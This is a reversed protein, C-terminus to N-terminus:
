HLVIKSVQIALVADKCANNNNESERADAGLYKLYEITLRTHKHLVLFDDRVIEMIGTPTPATDARNIGIPSRDPNCVCM